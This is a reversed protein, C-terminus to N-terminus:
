DKMFYELIENDAVYININEASVSYVQNNNYRLEKQHSYNFAM